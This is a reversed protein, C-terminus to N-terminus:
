SETHTGQRAQKKRENNAELDIELSYNIGMNRIGNTFNDATLFVPLNLKKNFKLNIKKHINLIDLINLRRKIINQVKDSLKNNNLKRNITKAFDDFTDLLSLIKQSLKKKNM